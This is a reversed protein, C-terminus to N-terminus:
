KALEDRHESVYKLLLAADSLVEKYHDVEAQKCLTVPEINLIPINDHISTISFLKESDECSIITIGNRQDTEVSIVFSKYVYM